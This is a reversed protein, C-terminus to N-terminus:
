SSRIVNSARIAEVSVTERMDMHHTTVRPAGHLAEVTHHGSTSQLRGNIYFGPDFNWVISPGRTMRRVTTPTKTLSLKHSMFTQSGTVGQELSLISRMSKRRHEGNRPAAQQVMSDISM